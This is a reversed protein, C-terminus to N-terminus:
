EPLIGQGVLPILFTDSVFTNPRLQVFKKLLDHDIPRRVEVEREGCELQARTGDNFVVRWLRSLRQDIM